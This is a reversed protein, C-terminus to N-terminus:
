VCGTQLCDDDSLAAAASLVCPVEVATVVSVVSVLPLPLGAAADSLAVAVVAAASVASVPVAVALSLASTTSSVHDVHFLNRIIHSCKLQYTISTRIM